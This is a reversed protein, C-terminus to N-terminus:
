TYLPNLRGHAWAAAVLVSLVYCGVALVLAARRQGPSRALGVAVFAPWAALGFRTASTLTTTLLASYWAVWGWIVLAVWAARAAPEAERARERWLRRTMGFLVAAIGAVVVLDIAWPLYAGGHSYARAFASVAEHVPTWPPALERDWARQAQVFGDAHGTTVQQVAAVAALSVPGTAAYLVAVRDVRRTAVVRGVALAPGLLVGISRTLGAVLAAAAAAPPRGRRLAWIGSTTAAILLGESYFATMVVSTPWIALVVVARRAAVADDTVAKTVQHLGVFAGLSTITATLHAATFSGFLWAFPTALWVVGPFFAVNEQLHFTPDHVSYGHELVMRYWDGDLTFVAQIPDAGHVAGLLLQGLRWAAWVRLVFGLGEVPRQQQVRRLTTM